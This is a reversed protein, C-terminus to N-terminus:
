AARFGIRSKTANVSFGKNQVNYIEALTMQKDGSDTVGIKKLLQRTKSVELPKFEYMATLRGKRLLATDINNIHTNFTCITQIGLCEGLMGDTLNLLVSIASNNNIERSVLLDEADEIILVSNRSEILLNIFDPSDLNSAIKPSLFIFPKQISCILHRIYTSKGTGPAGYFLFLGSKDKRRLHRIIDTNLELLDDNYNEILNVKPNPCKIARTDLGRSSSVIMHIRPERKLRVCFKLANEAIISANGESEPSFVICVNGNDEIDVIIRGEIVYLVNDIFRGNKVPRYIEKKHIAVINGEFYSEIWAITRMYNANRVLKLNPIKGYYAYFTKLCNIYVDSDFISASPDNMLEPNLNAVEIQTSM